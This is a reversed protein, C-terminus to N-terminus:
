SVARQGGEGTPGKEPTKEPLKKRVKMKPLDRANVSVVPKGFCFNVISTQDSKADVNKVSIIDGVTCVVRTQGPKITALYHWLAYDDGLEPGIIPTTQAGVNVRVGIAFQGPPKPRLTIGGYVYAM